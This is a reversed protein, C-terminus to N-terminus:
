RRPSRVAYDPQRIEKVFDLAAVTEVARAPLWGQLLRAQPLSVQARLGHSALEAVYEMRFEVLEVYVQIEGAPNVRVLDTSYRAVFTRGDEGLAEREMSALVSRIPATVKARVGSPRDSASAPGGGDCLQAQVIAPALLAVVPMLRCRM